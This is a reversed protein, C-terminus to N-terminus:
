TASNASCHGTRPKPTAAAHQLVAYDQGDRDIVYYRNM